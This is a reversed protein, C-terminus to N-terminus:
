PLNKFLKAEGNEWYTAWALNGLQGGTTSPYAFLKSEDVGNNLLDSKVTGPNMATVHGDAFAINASKNHRFVIWNAEGGGGWNKMDDLSISTIYFQPDADDPGWHSDYYVPTRTPLKQVKTNVVIYGPNARTTYFTSGASNGEAAYTQFSEDVATTLDGGTPCRMTKLTETYENDLFIKGWPTTGVGNCIILYGDHDDKYIAAQLNTGKLNNMCTVARAKERAKALAPLLMGALIAIIAIVVLLEILTFSKKM